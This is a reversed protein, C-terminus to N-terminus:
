APISTIKNYIPLSIEKSLVKIQTAADKLTEIGAIKLEQAKIAAPEITNVKVKNLKQKLSEINLTPIGKMGGDAEYNAFMENIQEKTQIYKLAPLEKGSLYDLAAGGMTSLYDFINEAELYGLKKIVAAVGDGGLINIKTKPHREKFKVLEDIERNTGKGFQNNESLGPIGNFFVGDADKLAINIKEKIDDVDIDLAIYNAPIQNTRFIGAEVKMGPNKKLMDIFNDTKLGEPVRAALVKEPLILEVNHKAAIDEIELAIKERNNFPNLMKGAIVIKNVINNEMLSKIVPLKGELKAGQMIAVTNKYPQNTSDFLTALEKKVLPGMVRPGEIYKAIHGRSAQDRHLAGAADQIVLDPMVAKKILQAHKKVDELNKSSEAKYFRTNELMAIKIGDQGLTKVGEAAVQGISDNIFKIGQDKTFVGRNRLMDTMILSIPELSYRKDVTGDKVVEEGKNFEKFSANHSTLVLKIKPNYKLIEIISDVAKSVRLMNDPDLEQSTDGVNLDLLVLGRKGTLFKQPIDKINALFDSYNKLGGDTEVKGLVPLDMPQIQPTNLKIASLS